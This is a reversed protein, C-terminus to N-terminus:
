ATVAPAASVPAPFLTPLLDFDLTTICAGAPIMNPNYPPYAPGLGPNGPAVTVQPGLIGPSWTYGDITRQNMIWWAGWGWIMIDNDIIYGLAALARGQASKAGLQTFTGAPMAMLEQVAKPQAALYAAGFEAAQAQTAIKPM